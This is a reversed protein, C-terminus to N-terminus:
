YKFTSKKEILEEMKEILEEEQGKYIVGSAAFPHGEGIVGGIEEISKKLLNGAHPMKKERILRELIIPVRISVKVLDKKTKMIGYGPIVKSMNMFGIIYKVPNIVKQFKLYSCLSGIVKTGMGKFKDKVHFWQTNKTKNFGKKKLENVIEKNIIKREEELKKALKMAKESFKGNICSDLALQPGNQYYGVSVLVTLLTSIRRAFNDFSKIRYSEKKGRLIIEVNEGADQLAERNLGRLNGPIEVAGIVALPALEKNKSNLQKAFFYSVTSGSADSTGPIGFLDPSANKVKEDTSKEPAHHDLIVVLNRGENFNSIMGAHACGIDVYFILQGKKSHLSQIVEPYTKELCFPKVEFGERRLAEQTITASCVGDADDHFILFAEKKQFNKVIKATNDLYSIFEKKRM